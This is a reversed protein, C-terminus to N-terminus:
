SEISFLTILTVSWPGFGAVLKQKHNECSDLWFLERHNAFPTISMALWPGQAAPSSSIRPFFFVSM